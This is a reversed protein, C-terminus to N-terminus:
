DFDFTGVQLWAPLYENLARAGYLIILNSHLVLFEICAQELDNLQRSSWDQDLALENRNQEITYLSQRLSQAQQERVALARKTDLWCQEITNLASQVLDDQM